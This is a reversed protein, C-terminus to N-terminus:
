VLLSRRAPRAPADGGGARVGVTLTVTSGELQETGPMPHQQLVIGVRDPDVVEKEVEKVEFGADQLIARARGVELGRVRPVTSTPPEGTSVEVRVTTGVAVSTGARPSQAVVIGKPRFSDVAVVDFRFDAATLKSIARAKSLGVIQPVDAKPPPPPDPFGRAPM